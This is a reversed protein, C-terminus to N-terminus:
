RGFVREAWGDIRALGRDLAAMTKSLDASDDHMWARAAYLYVGTVATVKVAGMWGPMDIGAAALMWEMSRGLHPLGIIAQKPDGKFSDLFSLVADRDDNLVDFREMLIDFLRDRHPTEIDFTGAPFRDLVICDVMRGYAVLIDDKDMFHERLTALDIDAHRAVDNLSVDVWRLDAALALAAHVVRDRVPITRVPIASVTPKKAKLVAKSTNKKKSEQAKKKAM